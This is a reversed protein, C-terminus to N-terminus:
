TQYLQHALRLAAEVAEAPPVGQVPRMEISVWGGYGGARLAAALKAHDVPSHAIPQLHPESIHFHRLTPGYRALLEPPDGSLTMGGSDLHLGFGPNNVLEVLRAGEAARTVFDCGYEVPNPEICVATGYKAASEGVRWFFESAVADAVALPMSGVLRNKPSGFVLVAAGLWGALRCMGDLYELTKTRKAANEFITLDSRGFLIAQLAVVRLSRGEWFRRYSLVEAETVELPKPWLKTPALEVGSVECRCLV